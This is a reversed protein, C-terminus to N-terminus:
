LDDVVGNIITASGYAKIPRGNEDREVTYKFKFPIRGVTLPVVEERDDKGQDIEKMWDRYMQEYDEPVIGM